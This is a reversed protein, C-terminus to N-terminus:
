SGEGGEHRSVEAPDFRVTTLVDEDAWRFSVGESTVTLDVVGVASDGAAGAGGVDATRCTDGGAEGAALGSSEAAPVRGRLQARSVLVSSGSVGARLCPIECWEAFATGAPSTLQEHAEWGHLGELTSTLEGGPPVAWGTHQVEMPFCAGLIRDIRVEEAGRAVVYSELRLGPMAVSGGPFIPRHWSAAWAWGGGGGAGLPHLRCRASSRGRFRLAVHNDPVDGRPTPGTATSYALRSYLPDERGADEAQHPRLHDSGHNHVRVIGDERTAQVAWGTSTMGFAVDHHDLPREGEAASWLPADAPLLLGILSKTAWLPSAPGSYPQVTAPHSGHWGLSLLGHDTFAGRDLFYKLTSNLLRKSEGPPMPTDGTVAGLAVAAGAAFRYTMSRGQFLPAGDAGFLHRYEQLFEELRTGHIGSEGRLHADLVPYLHLAWGNYHDFAQGDGDTYWGQGRDWTELLHLAREQAAATLEDGRGVSELFGAVSYPFLYWNNPAPVSTIAGRLWTEVSDQVDEDLQDWLWPRTLRLSLAVSASEVMPQGQVDHDRITLWPEAGRVGAAATGARLGEAYRELWGHPDAGDAGRVRFAAALMSRAFGELGDSRVGSRSARGPLNLHARGPSAWRWASGVLHDAMAEWHARTYGTYPSADRDEEPFLIGSGPLTAGPQVVHAGGSTM